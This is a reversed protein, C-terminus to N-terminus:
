DLALGWWINNSYDESQMSTIFPKETGPTRIIYNSCNFYKCLASAAISLSSNDVESLIEKILLTGDEPYCALIMNKYKYFGGDSLSFIIDALNMFRLGHRIHPLKNLYKERLESYEQANLSIIESAQIQEIYVEDQMFKKETCTLSYNFDCLRYWDFLSSEAPCTYTPYLGRKQAEEVCNRILKKGIGSNRYESVVAVAYIYACEMQGLYNDGLVFSMGFPTDNNSAIVCFGCSEYHKLFGEIMEDSDGFTKKWLDFLFPYDSKEAMRFEVDSM